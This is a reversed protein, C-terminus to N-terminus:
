SMYIEQRAELGGHHLNSKGFIHELVFAALITSARLTPESYIM